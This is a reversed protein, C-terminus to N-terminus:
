RIPPRALDCAARGQCWGPLPGPGLHWGSSGVASRLTGSSGTAAVWALRFRRTGRAPCTAASSQRPPRPKPTLSSRAAPQLCALVRWEVDDGAGPTAGIAGRPERRPSARLHRAHLEPLPPRALAPGARHEAMPLFVRPLRTGSRTSALGHSALRRVRQRWCVPRSTTPISLNAMQLQLCGIRRVVAPSM